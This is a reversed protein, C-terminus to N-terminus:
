DINKKKKDKEIGLRDIIYQLLLHLKFINVYGIELFGGFKIYLWNKGTWIVTFWIMFISTLRYWWITKCLYSIYLIIGSFYDSIYLLKSSINVWLM